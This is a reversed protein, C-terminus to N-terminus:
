APVPFIPAAQGYAKPWVVKIVGKQIQMMTAAANTNQGNAGFVIPGQPLIHEALSTKALAERVAERKDSKARELADAVVYVAQYAFVTSTGMPANYEKQYNAYASQTRPSLLNAQYNGDM